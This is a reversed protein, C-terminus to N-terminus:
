PRSGVCLSVREEWDGPQCAVRRSSAWGRREMRMVLVEDSSRSLGGRSYADISEGKTPGGSIPNERRMMCYTGVNWVPAQILTM